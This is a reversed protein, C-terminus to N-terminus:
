FITTLGVEMRTRSFTYIPLNSDNITHTVAIRPAFRKVALRRNLLSVTLSYSHDRRARGFAAFVDDFRSYGIVPQALVSFGAPLERAYTASLNFSTQAFARHRARHRNTWVRLNGLSQGDLARTVGATANFVPGDLHRAWDHDLRGFSGQLSFLTRATPSYTAEMQGGVAHSYGEGGFWRRSGTAAAALTVNGLAIRPGSYGSLTMEDFRSGAYERRSLSAGFRQRVHGAIRPAWEGGIQATLGIGSSRRGDKSLNFPLGYIEISEAATAANVNTDPAIAFAASFSWTREHRISRLFLDVNAAVAAPLANARVMRFHREANVHDNALFYARALELRVRAADPHDILIRQFHEIARRPKGGELYAMGLRFRLEPNGPDDMVRQKQAAIATSPDPADQATAACPAALAVLGLLRLGPCATMILRCPSGARRGM